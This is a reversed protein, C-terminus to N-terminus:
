SVPVSPWVGAAEPQSIVLAAFRPAKTWAVM